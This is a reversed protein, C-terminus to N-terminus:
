YFGPSVYSVTRGTVARVAEKAIRVCESSPGIVSLDTKLYNYQLKGANPTATHIAARHLNVRRDSLGGVGTSSSLAVTEPNPFPFTVRVAPPGKRGAPQRLTALGANTFLTTLTLRHYNM